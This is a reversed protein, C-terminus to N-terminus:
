QRLGDLMAALGLTNSFITGVLLGLLLLQGQRRPMAQIGALMLLSAAVHWHQSYLFFEEGWLTHLVINILVILLVYM